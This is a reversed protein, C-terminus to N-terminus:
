RLLSYLVLPNILQSCEKRDFQLVAAPKMSLPYSSRPVLSYTGSRDPLRLTNIKTLNTNTM